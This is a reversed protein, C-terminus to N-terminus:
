GSRRVADGAMVRATRNRQLWLATREDVGAMRALKPVSWVVLLLGLVAVLRYM